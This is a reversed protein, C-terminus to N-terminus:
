SDGAEKALLSRKRDVGWRYGSLAGDNKVVRHCPIAVALTNAACAGAVARVAKPDGILRAIETYSLTKGAPIERLAQWVRQQFATGRIDLPLDLGLAPAEIFGVVRAVLGEFQSDGGVMDACPFRDQLDNILKEADDGLSIACIGLDSSAVLIAGLSCEGVAFRITMGAGGKRYNTPKMGLLQNSNEYFRSNSGYGAEFIADTITGRNDLMSRLCRARHANSYAKPTLGTTKKFIRHFHYTSMGAHAALEELNFAEDSGEIIQCVRAVITAHQESLAPQDPKCRKCPRFGAHEADEISQHFAINEPRAARSPCSPRCYVGTTKVSYYFAGDAAADRAVVKSWRPDDFVAATVTDKDSLKM